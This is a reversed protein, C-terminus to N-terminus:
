PKKGVESLVDGSTTFTFSLDFTYDTKEARTVVWYDDKGPPAAGPKLHRKEAPTFRWRRVADEVAARFEEAFPGPSSFARLSPGIDAVNGAADVTICVGVFVPTKQRGLAASPYVPKSLPHMPEAPVLVDAPQRPGTSIEAKPPTRAVPTELFAFQSEGDARVAPAHKCGSITIVTAITAMSFGLGGARNLFRSTMRMIEAGALHLIACATQFFSRLTTDDPRLRM